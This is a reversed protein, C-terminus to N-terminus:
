GSFLTAVKRGLINHITLEVSTNSKNDPIIYVLRVTQNSPNPYVLLQMQTPKTETEAVATPAIYFEWCYPVPPDYSAHWDTGLHNPPGVLHLGDTIDLLCVHVTEGPSFHLGAEEVNIEIKNWWPPNHGGGPYYHLGSDGWRITDNNVSMIISATDIAWPHFFRFRANFLISDPDDVIRCPMDATPTFYPNPDTVEISIEFDRDPSVVSGNEPFPYRAVPGYNDFQAEWATSPFDGVFDSLFGRPDASVFLQGLTDRLNYVGCRFFWYGSQGYANIYEFQNYGDSCPFYGVEEIIRSNLAEEDIKLIYTTDDIITINPILESSFSAWLSLYFREGLLENLAVGISLRTTDIYHHSVLLLEPGIRNPISTRWPGREFPDGPDWWMFPPPYFSKVYPRQATLSVAIFLLIITMKEVRM